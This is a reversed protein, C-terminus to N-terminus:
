SDEEAQKASDIAKDYVEQGFVYIIQDEDEGRLFNSITYVKEGPNLGGDRTWKQSYRQRPWDRLLVRDSQVVLQFYTQGPSPMIQQSEFLTTRRKVAADRETKANQSYWDKINVKEQEVMWEPKLTATSSTTSETPATTKRPSMSQMDEGWFTSVASPSRARLNRSLPSSQPPTPVIRKGAQHNLTANIKSPLSSEQVRRRVHPKTSSSM